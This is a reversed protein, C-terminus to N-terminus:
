KKMIELVTATFINVGNVLVREDFNYAVNHGSAAVPTMLRIFTAIGGHDQVRKMMYSVDESGGLAMRKNDIMKLNIANAAQEVIEMMAPDSELSYAEGVPDVEVTCGHMAASSELISMAYDRVYTNIETTAGRTEIEMYAEDAIINRGTGGRAVGVNLRTAGKSHRPISHLNLIATAMALNANCGLEPWGAAHTSKGHITANLKTTALAGGSGPYLDFDMGEPLKTIHSGIFYEVDDFHGKSVISKAGRVGEEAPQFVLKIVGKLEDKKRMLQHAVGLGITAHGDHGCAHMNGDFCSRFGERNPYHNEDKTEFLPLSDIDFRMGVVPGPKGTDLIGIVGTMGGKMKEAFEAIAGTKMAREYTANLIEESPVGMRDEAVLVDEAILVKYGLDTLIKAIISSTRVEEWGKEPHSHFDRRRKILFDKLEDTYKLVDEYM